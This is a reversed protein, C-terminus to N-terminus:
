NTMLMFKQMALKTMTLLNGTLVLKLTLMQLHYLELEKILEPYEFFSRLRRFVLSGYVKELELRYREELRQKKVVVDSFGKNGIIDAVMESKKGTDDFVIFVKM